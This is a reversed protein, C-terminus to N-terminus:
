KKIIKYKKKKRVIQNLPERVNWTLYYVLCLNKRKRSKNDIDSWGSLNGKKSFSFFFYSFYLFRVHKGIRTGSAHWHNLLVSLHCGVSATLSFMYQPQSVNVNTEKYVLFSIGYIICCFMFRFSRGCILNLKM